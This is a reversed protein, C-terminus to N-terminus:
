RRLNHLLETAAGSAGPRGLRCPLSNLHLSNWCYRKARLRRRLLQLPLVVEAVEVTRNGRTCRADGVRHHEDCWADRRTGTRGIESILIRYSRTSVRFNRLNSAHRQPIRALILYSESKLNLGERKRIKRPGLM